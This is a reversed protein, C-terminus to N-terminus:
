YRTHGGNADICAQCRRRMSGVLHNFFVQPIGNWIQVLTQGLAALTVPQNPLARLRRQMEDCVHEIPELDPSVAPWPLVDINQQALFDRVVRAVHPRANDQQLTIHRQQGQVFPIVHPQIIEDRYRVANLNGDIVVLPTRGTSTIGGWVMVSGGGFARREVVCADNFREGVRRYVRSRGDSSDLHIRSEDTFLIGAWDRRNFRLHRRCWALRAVRHRRLFVPRVAPRRPRIRRERLRNRVTRPSIARLGPITRATLSATQFRNRLHVLRIHNDQQRSTVRPRGARPRDRVNGFQQFRRWLAQITNIHVGFQTAVARHLMGAQIMGIARLRDNENLRPM